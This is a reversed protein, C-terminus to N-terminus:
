IGAGMGSVGDASISDSWPAVFGQGVPDSPGEFVVPIDQTQQKLIVMARGGGALIVDPKLSVLEAAYRRLEDADGGGWREDIRVNRGEAWGAEHLSRRFTALYSQGLPTDAYAMLVGVRRTDHPSSRLRPSRGLRRRAGFLTIFDRRKM